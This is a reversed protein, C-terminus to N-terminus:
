KIIFKLNPRYEAHLTTVGGGGGWWNQGFGRVVVFGGIYVSGKSMLCRACSYVPGNCLFQIESFM